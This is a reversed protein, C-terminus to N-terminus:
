GLVIKGGEATVVLDQDRLTADAAIRAAIPTIVLEEIV